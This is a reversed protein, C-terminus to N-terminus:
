PIDRFDLELIHREEEKINSNRKSREKNVTSMNLNHFNKQHKDYQICHVVNGLISWQEM